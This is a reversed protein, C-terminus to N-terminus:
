ATVTYTGSAVTTNGFDAGLARISAQMATVNAVGEVAVYMVNADPTDVIIPTNTLALTTLIQEGDQGVNLAQVNAAVNAADVKLHTITGVVWQGTEAGTGTKRTLAM